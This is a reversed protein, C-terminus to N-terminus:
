YNSFYFNVAWNRKLSKGLFYNFWEINFTENWTYIEPLQQFLCYCLWYLYSNAYSLVRVWNFLLTSPKRPRLAVMGVPRIYWRYLGTDTHIHISSLIWWRWSTRGLLIIEFFFILRPSHTAPFSWSDQHVLFLLVLSLFLNINSM